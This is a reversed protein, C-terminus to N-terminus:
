KLKNILKIQTKDDERNAIWLCDNCDINMATVSRFHNSMVFQLFQGKDSLVHIISTPQCVDLLLLRGESDACINLPSFELGAYSKSYSYKYKGSSEVAILTYKKDDTVCVDGTVKNQVIYRPNLYLPKGDDDYEFTNVEKGFSNFVSVKARNFTYSKLCVLYDGSTTLSIGRPFWNEETVLSAENCTAKSTTVLLVSKKEFSAYILGEGDPTLAIYQPCCSTEYEKVVDGTKNVEIIKGTGKESVIVTENKTNCVLDHVNKEELHESDIDIFKSEDLKFSPNSMTIKAFQCLFDLDLNSTSLQLQNKEDLDSEDTCFTCDDVNVEPLLEPNHLAEFDHLFNKLGKNKKTVKKKRKEMLSIESIIEGYSKKREKEAHSLLKKELQDVKMHFDKIYRRIDKKVTDYNIAQKSLEQWLRSLKKELNLVENNQIELKGLINQVNKKLLEWIKSVKHREHNEKICEHCVSRTCTECYATTIKNKHIECNRRYVKGGNKKSYQLVNHGDETKAPTQLHQLLCDDGLNDKCFTCYYKVENIENTCSCKRVSYVADMGPLQQHVRENEM